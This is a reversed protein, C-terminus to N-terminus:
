LESSYISIKTEVRKKKMLDDFDLVISCIVGDCNLVLPVCMM